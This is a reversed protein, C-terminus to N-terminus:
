EKIEFLHFILSGGRMQITSIFALDNIENFKHGTGILRFHRRKVDIASGSTMFWIYLKDFQMDASLIQADIPLVAEPYDTIQLEQKWIVRM